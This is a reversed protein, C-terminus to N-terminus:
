SFKTRLSKLIEKAYIQFSEASSAIDEVMKRILILSNKTENRLEKVDEKIKRIEAEIGKTAGQLASEIEERIIGKTSKMGQLEADDSAKALISDAIGKPLGAKKMVDLIDPDAIGQEKMAMVMDMVLISGKKKLM